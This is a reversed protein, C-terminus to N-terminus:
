GFAHKNLGVATDPRSCKAPICHPHLNAHCHLHSIPKCAPNMVGVVQRINHYASAERCLPQQVSMVTSM